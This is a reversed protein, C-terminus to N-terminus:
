LASQRAHGGKDRHRRLAHQHVPPSISQHVSPSIARRRSRHAEVVSRGRASALRVDVVEKEILERAEEERQLRVLHNGNSQWRAEEERQLRVVHNGNIAM